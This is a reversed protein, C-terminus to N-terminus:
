VVKDLNDLGTVKTHKAPIQRAGNLENALVKYLIDNVLSSKGSGSVGTVATFTGLPFDVTVDRLNTARAGHVTIQRKKDIPRRKKPTEISKRGSLYDGTVSYKNKLLDKYSGSHVVEGGHEGAGPGIDVIWDATRITDEDHEVVILTNGLNKLKVLTDILRRNDRQHLGISPEDLVYLVGTLGSGIQTALRIRQAEGGSLSGAARAMTLYGLGVELLFELRLRIERLVQAAIRAERDTLELHEMFGYADSLSLEAVASINQGAVLVALVEPKLRKGECVPCPVERLYEGYRQKSYESETEHYKREIYPMVGEFGTSYKMT